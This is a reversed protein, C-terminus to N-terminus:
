RRPYQRRRRYRRRRHRLIHIAAATGILAAVALVLLATKNYSDPAEAADILRTDVPVPGRGATAPDPAKPLATFDVIGTSELLTMQTMLMQNAQQAFQRVIDNRTADRVTAITPFIQSAAARLRNVFINDFVAASRAGRMEALWGLQDANPQNPLGVGLRRAAERGLRDLVVHDAAIAEGTQRIRPDGSRQVAMNGAAIEWLAALRIQIVLDRDAPGVQGVGRTDFSTVPVPIEGASARAALPALMLHLVTLATVVAFRHAVRVTLM